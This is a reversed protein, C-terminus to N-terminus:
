LPFLTPKAAKIINMIDRHGPATFHAADHLKGNGITMTSTGTPGSWLDIADPYTTMINYNFTGPTAPNGGNIFTMPICDSVTEIASVLLQYNAWTGGNTGILLFVKEAAAAQIETIVSDKILEANLGGGALVQILQSTHPRLMYAYSSDPRGASYGATQSDGVFLIKPHPSETTTVKFYDFSVDTKGMAGFQFYFYNPRLPWGNNIFDYTNSISATDGTTVNKVLANIYGEQVTLRLMYNDTTNFTPLGTWRRPAVQWSYATDTNGILFLTDPGSFDIHGFSSFRYDGFNFPSYVGCYVGITSDTIANIKFGTEVVYNRIMTLGFSTDIIRTQTSKYNGYYGPAEPVYDTNAIVHAYGGSVTISQKDMRRPKWRSNLTSGDFTEDILTRLGQPWNTTVNAPLLYTQAKLCSSFFILLIISLLRM